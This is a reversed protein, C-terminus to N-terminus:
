QTAASHARAALPASQGAIAVRTCAHGHGLAYKVTPFVRSSAIVFALTVAGREGFREVVRKRLREASQIDRALVAKAFSYGLAANETMANEEDAMIARLTAIPVGRKEAMGVVLQTCPGCDESITAALKAAFLADDPVDEDHAAFASFLGFRFMASASTDAIQRLYTTDYDHEREFADLRRDVLRAFLSLGRHKSIPRDRVAAGPEPRSLWLALAAPLFITPINRVLHIMEDRGAFCDFVHVLAHLALFLSGALAAPWARRRAVAAWALGFASVLFACGIDRVFHPNFPGTDSVGPIADYWARPAGLMFVGNAGLGVVLILSLWRRM